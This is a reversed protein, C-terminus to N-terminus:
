KAAQLAAISALQEPTLHKMIEDVSMESLRKGAKENEKQKRKEASKAIRAEEREKNEKEIIASVSSRGSSKAFEMFHRFVSCLNPEDVEILYRSITLEGKVYSIDSYNMGDEVKTVIDCTFHRSFMDIDSLLEDVFEKGFDAEYKARISVFLTEIAVQRSRVQTYYKFFDDIKDDSKPKLYVVKKTAGENANERKCAAAVQDASNQGNKVGKVNPIMNLNDQKM